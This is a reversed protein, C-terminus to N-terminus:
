NLRNRCEKYNNLAAIYLAPRSSADQVDPDAGAELLVFSRGLSVVNELLLFSIMCIHYELFM